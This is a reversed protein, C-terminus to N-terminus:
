LVGKQFNWQQDATDAESSDWLRDSSIVLWNAVEQASPPRRRRFYYGNSSVCLVKCMGTVPFQGRQDETSQLRM